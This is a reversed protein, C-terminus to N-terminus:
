PRPSALLLTRRSCDHRQPDRPQPPYRVAGQPAPGLSSGGPLPLLAAAGHASSVGPVPPHPALHQRHQAAATPVAPHAAGERREGSGGDTGDAVRRVNCFVLHYHGCIIFPQDLTCSYPM